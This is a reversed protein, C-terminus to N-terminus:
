SRRRARTPTLGRTSPRTTSIAASSTWAPSRPCTRSAPCGRPWSSSSRAAADREAGEREVVVIWEGAEDDYRARRRRDDLGLLPLEMVRTYMELWDGIKDKPSFVPWNEPFKIYPLHDYWVPDHLCLSKYRNRWSDGPRANREVILAPVGLQRLRAGLAIGGQGGGVILVYPQVETGLADQERSRRELWTGAAATAPTATSPASRGGTAPPSRTARSSTSPRSCPGRRGTACACTGAAAARRPRSGSGRRPSATPRRRSRRRTGAARACTRSRRALMARIEEPGELTKINWTFAVLDRWFGDEAFLAAAREADELALADELAGLWQRVEATPSQVAATDSM